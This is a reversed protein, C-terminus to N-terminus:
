SNCSYQPFCILFNRKDTQTLNSMKESINRTSELYASM